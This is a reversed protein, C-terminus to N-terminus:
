LAKVLQLCPNAKSWLRPFEELAIYGANVYFARTEAYERSPHSASITKVQMVKGGERRAMAEASQLLAFGFGNGRHDAHVAMCYIEFSDAFHRRVTIFGVMSSGLHATLTPFTEAHAAFQLRHKKNGFWGPLTRLIRECEDAIGQNATSIEVLASRRAAGGAKRDRLSFPNKHFFNM